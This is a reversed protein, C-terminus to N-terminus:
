EKERTEEEERRLLELVSKVSEISNVIMFRAALIGGTEPLENSTAQAQRLYALAARMRVKTARVDGGGERSEM